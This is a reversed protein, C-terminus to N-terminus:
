DYKQVRSSRQITIELWKRCHLIELPSPTQALEWKIKRMEKRENEIKVRIEEMQGFEWWVRM